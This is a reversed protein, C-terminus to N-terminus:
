NKRQPNNCNQWFKEFVYVVHKIINMVVRIFFDFYLCPPLDLHLKQSWFQNSTITMDWRVKKEQGLLDRSRYQRSWNNWSKPMASTFLHYLEHIQSRSQRSCPPPPPPPSWAIRCPPDHLTGPCLPSHLAAKNLVKQYFRSIKPPFPLTLIFHGM